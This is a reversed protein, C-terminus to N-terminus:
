NCGPPRNLDILGPRKITLWVCDPEIRLRIEVGNSSARYLVSKKLHSTEIVAGTLRQDDDRKVRLIKETAGIECANVIKIALAPEPEARVCRLRTHSEGCGIV